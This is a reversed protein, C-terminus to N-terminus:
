WMYPLTCSTKYIKETGSFVESKDPNWFDVLWELAPQSLFTGDNLVFGALFGKRQFDDLFKQVDEQTYESKRITDYFSLKDIEASKQNYLDWAKRLARNYNKEKTSIWSMFKGTQENRFRVYYYPSNARSTLSFPLKKLMAAGWFTIEKCTISLAPCASKQTGSQTGSPVKAGVIVIM